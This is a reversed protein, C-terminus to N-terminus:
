KGSSTEKPLAQPWLRAVLPALFTLAAVAVAFVARLMPDVPIISIVSMLMDPSATLVGVLASVAAALRVSHLAWWTRCEDIFKSM